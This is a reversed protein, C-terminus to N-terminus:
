TSVPMARASRRLAEEAAAGTAGSSTTPLSSARTGSHIGGGFEDYLPMDIGNDEIINNAIVLPETSFSYQAFIGHRGGTITFGDIRGGDSDGLLFVAAPNRKYDDTERVGIVVSPTAQPDRTM